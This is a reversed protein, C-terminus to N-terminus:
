GVISFRCLRRRVHESQRLGETISALSQASAKEALAPGTCGVDSRARIRLWQKSSSIAKEGARRRGSSACDQAFVTNILALVVQRQGKGAYALANRM